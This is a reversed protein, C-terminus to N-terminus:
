SLHGNSGAPDNLEAETVAVRPAFSEASAVKPKDPMFNFRLLVRAVRRAPAVCGDSVIRM